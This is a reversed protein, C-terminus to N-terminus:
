KLPIHQLEYGKDILKQYDFYDPSFMENIQLYRITNILHTKTMSDRIRVNSEEFILEFQLPLLSQSDIITKFTAKVFKGDSVSEAIYTFGYTFQYCDKDNYKISELLPQESSKIKPEDIIIDDFVHYYQLYDKFDCDRFLRVIEECYDFEGTSFRIKQENYDIDAIWNASEVRSGHHEVGDILFTSKINFKDAPNLPQKCLDYKLSVHREVTDNNYYGHTSYSSIVSINDIGCIRKTAEEILFQYEPLKNSLSDSKSCIILLAM